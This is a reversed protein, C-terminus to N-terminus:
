PGFWRVPALSLAPVYTVLALTALLALVFPLIQRFVATTGVGGVRATTFVLMGLPPTLAGIVLNIVLVIGFHVPDIGAALVIPVLIPVLIVMAAIMEMFLGVVLLFLNILLLLVVPDAAVAELAAAASQPVQEVTLVWAFPAAMAIIVVVAVTDSLAERAAALLRTGTLRRYILAGCLLAYVIAMAGAETATFAGFRVGGVILVPLLLAPIAAALAGLRERAGARPVDGGYGRRISILWVAGALAAAALLGPVLTAVFLAGVSASALAGYIILGLSPPILNALVSSAGTVACAFAPDYGRRAMEPVLVKAIAAADAMSSGSVGAMMTNTAVNVQGLGGRWHGVLRAAFAILRETIGAANMLAAALIFFPIALLTFSNLASASSQAVALLMLEGQPAFAAFAGFALAFAVPVQLLVLALAVVMLTTSAGAAGYLDGALARLVGYVAAGAVVAALGGAHWPRESGWRALYILALAAGAPVAAYLYRLPLGTGPSVHTSRAVLDIGHVLMFISAAAVAAQVFFAHAGHWHVPLLRRAIDIDIHAGRGVSRAMGLFVAWMFLWVAAEEPWPLSDNLVYRCFVQLVAVASAAAVLLVAAAELARDALAALPGRLAPPALEAPAAEHAM